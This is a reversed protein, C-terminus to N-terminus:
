RWWYNTKLDDSLIIVENPKPTLTKYNHKKAGEIFREVPETWEHLSLKFKGWHIPVVWEANVDTAAQVSQKPLM